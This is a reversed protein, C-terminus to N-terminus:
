SGQALESSSTKKPDGVNYIIQCGIEKCMAIENAPMNDPGRDGGKAFIQPKLLRLSEACTNDSDINVMVEDVSGFERVVALRDAMQPYFTGRPKNNKATLQDNRSLILVLRDGLKRAEQLHTMHGLGNPPDFGGSVAVTVAPGTGPRTPRGPQRPQGPRGSDLGMQRGRFAWISPVIFKFEIVLVIALGVFAITIFLGLNFWPVVHRLTTYYFTGAIMTFNVITGWFLAQALTEKFEGIWPILKQRGLLRILKKLM